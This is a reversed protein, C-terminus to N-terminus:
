LLMAVATFKTDVVPVDKLVEALETKRSAVNNDNDSSKVVLFFNRQSLQMHSLM